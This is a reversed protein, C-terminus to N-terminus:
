IQTLCIKFTFDLLPWITQPGVLGFQMIYCSSFIYSGFCIPFINVSNM